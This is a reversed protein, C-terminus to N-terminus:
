AHHDKPRRARGSPSRLPPGDGMAARNRGRVCHVSSSARHSVASVGPDLNHLHSPESGDDSASAARRAAPRSRRARGRARVRPLRPSMSKLSRVITNGRRPVVVRRIAAAARNFVHWAALHERTAKEIEDLLHERAVPDTFRPLWSQLCQVYSRWATIRGRLCQLGAIRDLRGNHARRQM